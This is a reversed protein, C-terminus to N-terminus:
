SLGVSAAYKKTIEEQGDFATKTAIDQSRTMQISNRLKALKVINSM